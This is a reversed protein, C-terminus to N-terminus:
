IYFENENIETCIDAYHNTPVKDWKKDNSAKCEIANVLDFERSVDISNKCKNFSVQVLQGSKLKKSTYTILENTKANILYSM